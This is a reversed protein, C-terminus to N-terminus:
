KPSASTESGATSTASENSSETISNTCSTRSTNTTLTTSNTRSRTTLVKTDGQSLDRNRRDGLNTGAPTHVSTSLERQQKEIESMADYIFLAQRGVKKNSPTKHSALEKLLALHEQASQNAARLAAYATAASPSPEAPIILGDIYGQMATINHDLDSIWRDLKNKRMPLEGLQMVGGPSPTAPIVIGGPLVNPGRVVVTDQRTAEGIIQEAGQKIAVAATAVYNIGQNFPVATGRVSGHIATPSASIASAGEDACSPLLSLASLTLALAALLSFKSRPSM